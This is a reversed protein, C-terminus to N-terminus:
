FRFTCAASAYGLGCQTKAARKDDHRGSLAGVVFLAAGGLILASGVSIGAIGQTKASDASDPECYIDRDGCKSQAAIRTAGYIALGLGVAAVGGGISYWLVRKSSSPPPADMPGTAGTAGTAGSPAAAPASGDDAVEVNVVQGAPVYVNTRFERGSAWRIVVVHNGPAVTIKDPRPTRGWDQGDVLISGGEPGGSVIFGTSGLRQELAVLRANADSYTPDEPDGTELFRKLAAIANELQGMREYAQSLNFQIRPRPDVAYANTWERVATDYNGASYAAEGRRFADRASAQGPAVPAPAAQAFALHPISLTILLSLTALLRM